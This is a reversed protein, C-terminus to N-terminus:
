MGMFWLGFGYCSCMPHSKLSFLQFWSILYCGIPCLVDSLNYMYMTYYISKQRLHEFHWSVFVPLPMRYKLSPLIGRIVHTSTFSRDPFSFTLPSQPWSVPIGSSHIKKKVNINIKVQMIELFLYLSHAGVFTWFNWCVIIYLLYICANLHCQVCKIKYRLYAM